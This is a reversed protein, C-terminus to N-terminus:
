ALKKRTLGLSQIRETMTDQCGSLGPLLETIAEYEALAEATEQFRERCTVNSEVVPNCGTETEGIRKNICFNHLRGVVEVIFKIKDLGVLLPRWYMGWKRTMMGFAIEIRIRLQSAYFNFNYYKPKLKDAGYYM